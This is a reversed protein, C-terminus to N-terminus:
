QGATPEFAGLDAGFVEDAPVAIPPGSVPVSEVGPANGILAEARGGEGPNSGTGGMPGASEGIQRRAEIEVTSTAEGGTDARIGSRDELTIGTVRGMTGQGDERLRSGTHLVPFGAVEGAPNDLNEAIPREVADLDDDQGTTGDGSDLSDLEQRLRLKQKPDNERAIDDAM